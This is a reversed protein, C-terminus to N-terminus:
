SCLDSVTATHPKKRWKHPNNPFYRFIKYSKKQSIWNLMQVAKHWLWVLHCEESSWCIIFFFWAHYCILKLSSKFPSMSQSHPPFFTRIHPLVCSCLRTQIYSQLNFPCFVFTLYTGSMELMLLSMCSILFILTFALLSDMASVQSSVVPVQFGNLDVCVDDNPSHIDSVLRMVLEKNDWQSDALNVLNKVHVGADLSGTVCSYHLASYVVNLNNSLTKYIQLYSKLATEWFLQPLPLLKCGSPFSLSFNFLTFSFLPFSSHIM